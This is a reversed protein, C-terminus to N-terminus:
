NRGVKVLRPDAEKTDFKHIWIIIREEKQDTWISKGVSNQIQAFTGDALRIETDEALCAAGWTMGCWPEMPLFMTVRNHYDLSMVEALSAHHPLAIHDKPNSHIGRQRCLRSPYQQHARNTTYVQTGASLKLQREEQCGVARLALLIADM